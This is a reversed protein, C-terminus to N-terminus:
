NWTTGGTVSALTSDHVQGTIDYAIGHVGLRHMEDIAGASGLILISKAAVEARWAQDATVTVTVLDTEAPHGTRPDLIHHRPESDTNWRRSLISSTAVAGREVTITGAVQDRQQPAAIEVSWEDAYWPTGEVRVDGGLEVMICTAGRRQLEEAVLDVIVGKGIGGPDFQTGPPLQVASLSHFVDIADACAPEPAAPTDATPGLHWSRDYGLDALHALMLPNFRQQTWERAVEARQLLEVTRRSLFVMQGSFRNLRSIESDPEFRSWLADLEEVLRQGAAAAGDAGQTVIRCRSGVARFEAQELADM